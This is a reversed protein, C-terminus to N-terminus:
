RQLPKKKKKKKKKKKEVNTGAGGEDGTTMRDTRPPARASDAGPRRPPAVTM